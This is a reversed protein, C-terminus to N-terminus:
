LNLKDNVAHRDTHVRVTANRSGNEGFHCPSLLLFLFLNTPTLVAGGRRRNQEWFRWKPDFTGSFGHLCSYALKQRSHGHIALLGGDYLFDPDLFMIAVDSKLSFYACAGQFIHM